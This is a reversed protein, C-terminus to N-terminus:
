CDSRSPPPSAIRIGAKFPRALNMPGSRPWPAPNGLAYTKLFVIYLFELTRASARVWKLTEKNEPNLSLAM